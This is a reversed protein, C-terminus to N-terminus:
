SLSLAKTIQAFQRLSEWLGEEQHPEFTIIPRLNKATLYQCLGPIDATGQGIALHQDASGDNDHLHLQGLWPELTPLWDQWRNRAYAHVHGIDLCFRAYDSALATLVRVHWRGDAEYTNEFMIPTNFRCAQVLLEQWTDLSHRFWSEEDAPSAQPLFNLHCVISKPEFLPILAFAQQLKKRTQKRATQDLAGPALGSFPAHLTCALGEAKLASAVAALEQEGVTDLEGGDLGIEPQLRKDLFKGLYGRRMWALPLNVFCQTTVEALSMM